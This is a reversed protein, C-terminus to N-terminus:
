IVNQLLDLNYHSKQLAKYDRKFYSTMKVTYLSM